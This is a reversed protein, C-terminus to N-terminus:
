SVYLVTKLVYLVSTGLVFAPARPTYVYRKRAPNRCTDDITYQARGVRIM